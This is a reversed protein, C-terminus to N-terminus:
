GSAAEEPAPVNEETTSSEESTIAGEPTSTEETTSSEETKTAAPEDPTSAEEPATASEESPTSEEETTASEESALTDDLAATTEPDDITEPKACSYGADMLKLARKQTVDPKTADGSTCTYPAESTSADEEPTDTEESTTDSELLDRESNACLYGNEILKLAKKQRVKTKTKDGKACAFDESKPLATAPLLAAMVISVALLLGIRTLIM